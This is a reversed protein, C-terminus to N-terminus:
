RRRRKRVQGGIEPAATGARGYNHQAEASAKAGDRRNASDEAQITLGNWWELLKDKEVIPQTGRGNNVIPGLFRDNLSGIKDRDSYPTELAATIEHWGALLKKPKLDKPDNRAAEPKCSADTEDTPDENLKKTPSEDSQPAEPSYEPYRDILARVDAALDHWDNKKRWEGLRLFYERALNQPTPALAISVSTGPEPPVLALVADLSLRNFIDLPAREEHLIRIAQATQYELIAPREIELPDNFHPPDGKKAPLRPRLALFLETWRDFCKLFQQAARYGKPSM